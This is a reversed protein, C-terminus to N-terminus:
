LPNVPLFLPFSIKQEYDLRFQSQKESGHGSMDKLSETNGRRIIALHQHSPRGIWHVKKGERTLCRWIAKM